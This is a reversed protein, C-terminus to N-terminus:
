LSSGFLDLQWINCRMMSGPPYEYEEQGVNVFGLRKCIANSASNDVSPYAHAFRHKGSKRAEEIAMATGATAVGQGQFEPLVSWGFEWVMEGIEERDWFGVSGAAEGGLEIVFMRGEGEAANMKLFREHRKRMREEAEPGGLHVTMRPDGMMRLELDLDYPQWLRITVPAKDPNTM